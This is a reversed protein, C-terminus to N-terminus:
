IGLKRVVAMVGAPSVTRPTISAASSAAAM